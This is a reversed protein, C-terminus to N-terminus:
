ECDDDYEYGHHQVTAGDSYDEYQHQEHADDAQAYAQNEQEHQEDAGTAPAAAQNQDECHQEHTGDPQANQM